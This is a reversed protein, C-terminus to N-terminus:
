FNELNCIVNGILPKCIVNGILLQKCIVNGILLQQGDVFWM